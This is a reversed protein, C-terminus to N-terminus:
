ILYLKMIELFSEYELNVAELDDYVTPAPVGRLDEVVKSIAKSLPKLGLTVVTGKIEHALKFAEKYHEKELASNLMEIETNEAFEKLLRAYFEEDDMMSHLAAKTDAGWNELLHKLDGMM